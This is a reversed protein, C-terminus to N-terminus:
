LETYKQLPKKILVHMCIFSFSLKSLSEISDRDKKEKGENFQRAKNFRDLYKMFKAYNDVNRFQFKHKTTTIPSTEIFVEITNHHKASKGFGKMKLLSVEDKFRTGKEDTKFWQLKANDFIKLTRPKWQKNERKRVEAKLELYSQRTRSRRSKDSSGTISSLRFFSPMKIM